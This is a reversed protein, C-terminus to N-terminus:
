DDENSPRFYDPFMRGPRDSESFPEVRELYVHIGRDVIGHKDNSYWVDVVRWRQGNSAILGEGIRPVVEQYDADWSDAINPTEYTVSIRPHTWESDM